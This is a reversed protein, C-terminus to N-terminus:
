DESKVDSVQPTARHTRAALVEERARERAGPLLATLDTFGRTVLWPWLFGASTGSWATLAAGPLYAFAPAAVRRVQWAASAELWDTSRVPAMWADLAAGAIMGAAMWRLRGSFGDFHGQGWTAPVFLDTPRVDYAVYFALILFGLVLSALAATTAAGGAARLRAAEGDAFSRGRLAGRLRVRLLAVALTTELTYLVIAQAVQRDALVALAPVALTSTSWVAQGAVSRVWAAVGGAQLQM